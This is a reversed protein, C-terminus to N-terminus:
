LSLSVLPLSIGMFWALLGWLLAYDVGLFWLFFADGLGVLFNVGTLVTMYKRVDETLAALRGIAPQNPDLGLRSPAPLSLAASIMFFFIVLALGFQVLLNIVSALLSQLVPGM